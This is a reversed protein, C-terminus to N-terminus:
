RWGSSAKMVAEGVDTAFGRVTVSQCRGARAAATAASAKIVPRLPKMAPRVLVLEETVVLWEAMAM